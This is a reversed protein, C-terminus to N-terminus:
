FRVHIISAISSYLLVATVFDTIIVPIEIAPLFADLRPLPADAFLATAGLAVLLAAAVFLAIRSQRRTAPLNVLWIENGDFEPRATM